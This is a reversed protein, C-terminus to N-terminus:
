EIMEKTRNSSTQEVDFIYIHVFRVCFLSLSLFVVSDSVYLSVSERERQRVLRYIPARCNNEAASKQRREEEQEKKEAKTECKARVAGAYLYLSLVLELFLYSRSLFLSGGQEM